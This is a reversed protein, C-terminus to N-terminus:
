SGFLRRGLKETAATQMRPLVHSYTDLTLMTTSHGLRDAVIKAEVGDLMLLTACSHRADYLRFHTPLNAKRLHTKFAASVFPGHLPGGFKNTFVFNHRFEWRDGAWSREEQQDVQHSKLLRIMEDPLEVRRVSTETKPTAFQWGGGRPRFLTKSISIQRTTWDVDSWELALYEAPRAGTAFALSFLTKWRGEPTAELLLKVQDQDMARMTKTRHKIPLDVDHIPNQLIYRWHVAKSFAGRLVSHINRVTQPALGKETLSNYYRQIVLASVKCLLLQGIEGKLRNAIEKYDQLTRAKLKNQASEKFWIKLFENLTIKSPEIWIGLELQRKIEAVRALAAKSNQKLTKAEEGRFTEVHVIRKGSEDYGQPIRILWSAKGSKSTRKSVSM